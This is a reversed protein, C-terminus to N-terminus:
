VKRFVGSYKGIPLWIPGKDFVLEFNLAKLENMLEKLSFVGSNRAIPKLINRALNSLVFDNILYFGDPRLVRNVEQLAKKWESIHHLVMFSLALDFEADEFPLRTTDAEFFRLRHNEQYHKMALDIQEPDVDTGVVEKGYEINLYSAVTGVGCGVELVRKVEELSVRGLMQKLIKINSQGHRKSNVFKKELRSM